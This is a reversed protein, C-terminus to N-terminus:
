SAVFLDFTERSHEAFAPLACLRTVDLLDYLLFDVDRDSVLPNVRGDYASSLRPTHTSSLRTGKVMFGGSGGISALSEASSGSPSPQIKSGLHSPNRAM